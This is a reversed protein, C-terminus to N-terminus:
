EPRKAFAGIVTPWCGIRGVPGSDARLREALTDIDVEAETAIGAALLGPLLSLALDVLHTIADEGVVTAVYSDLDPSPLLGAQAFTEPLRSGMDPQTRLRSFTEYVWENLQQSATTPPWMALLGRSPLVSGILLNMEAFVVIGGPRVHRAAKAVADAPDAQYM